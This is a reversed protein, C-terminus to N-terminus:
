RYNKQVVERNGAKFCRLQNDEKGFVDETEVVGQVM